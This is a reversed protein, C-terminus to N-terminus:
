KRVKGLEEVEFKPAVHIITYFTQYMDKPPGFKSIYDLRGKVQDCMTTTVDYCPIQREDNILSECWIM